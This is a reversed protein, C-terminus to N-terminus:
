EAGLQQPDGCSRGRRKRELGQIMRDRMVDVLNKERGCTRGNQHRGHGKSGLQHGCPEGTGLRRSM